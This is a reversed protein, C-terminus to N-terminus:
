SEVFRYDLDFHKDHYSGEPDNGLNTDSDVVAVSHVVWYGGREIALGAVMGALGGRGAAAQRVTHVDM